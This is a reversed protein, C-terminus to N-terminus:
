LRQIITYYIQTNQYLMIDPMSIVLASPILWRTITIGFMKYTTIIQNFNFRAAEYADWFAELIGFVFPNELRKYITLHLQRHEFHPIRIPTGKLKLFAKDMLRKLEEHDEVTLTKVAQDWFALEVQRRLIAFSLFHDPEVTIAFSLSQWIAPSFSYPLRRIGTRPRVDVFGLAKAVELQERLRAVSVGLEQSITNLPPLRDTENEGDLITSILYDLFESDLRQNAM